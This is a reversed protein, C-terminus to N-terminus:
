NAATKALSEVVQRFLESMEEPSKKAANKSSATKSTEKLAKKKQELEELKVLEGAARTYNAAVENWIKHFKNDAPLACAINLFTVATERQEKIRAKRSKM